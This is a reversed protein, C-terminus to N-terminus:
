QLVRVQIWIVAEPPVAGLGDISERTGSLGWALHPPILAQVSDGPNLLPALSHFGSPVDDHQWRFILPDSQRREALVTGDMLQISVDWRVAGGERLEERREEQGVEVVTWRLGSGDTQVDKWGWAQIAGEILAERSAVQRLHFAELHEDMDVPEGGEAVKLEPRNLRPIGVVAVAGVILLGLQWHWKRVRM